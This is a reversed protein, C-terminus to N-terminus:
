VWQISCYKHNYWPYVYMWYLTIHQIPENVTGFSIDNYKAGRKKGGEINKRFTRVKSQEIINTNGVTINRYSYTDLYVIIQFLSFLFFDPRLRSGLGLIIDRYITSRYRCNTETRSAFITQNHKM